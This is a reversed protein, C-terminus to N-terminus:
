ALSISYKGSRSRKSKRAPTPQFSPYTTLVLHRGIDIRRDSM